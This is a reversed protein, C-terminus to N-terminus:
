GFPYYHAKMWAPGYWFGLPLLAMFAGILFVVWPGAFRAPFSVLLPAEGSAPAAVKVIEDLDHMPPRSAFGTVFSTEAGSLGRYAVRLKYSVGGKSGRVPILETVRGDVLRASKIRLHTQWAWWGAASILVLGLIFVIKM